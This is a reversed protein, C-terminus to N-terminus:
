TRSTGCRCRPGAQYSLGGAALGPQDQREDAADDAMLKDTKKLNLYCAACPAVLQELQPDVLALNRAIVSRPWWRTRPSISRPGAATGTTWDGGAQHGAPRGGRPGVRRLRRQQMELSCGPYYAYKVVCRGIERAKKIIAQLQEVQRIKTPVLAMRGRTFMSLGMPGMKLMPLRSTSCTSAAPWGWSSAGATSRWWTPSPRPWRRPTPGGQGEGRPDCVAELRVHHRHHPDEAPLPDHLLLLLRLVVHHQGRAGRERQDANIM